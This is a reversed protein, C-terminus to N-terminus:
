HKRFEQQQSQVSKDRAKLSELEISGSTTLTGSTLAAFRTSSMKNSIKFRFNPLSKSNYDLHQSKDNFYKNPSPSMKGWPCKASLHSKDMGDSGHLFKSLLTFKEM